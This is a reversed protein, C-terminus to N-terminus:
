PTAPRPSWWLASSRRRRPASSWRLGDGGVARKGTSSAADVGDAPQRGPDNRKAVADTDVGTIMAESM